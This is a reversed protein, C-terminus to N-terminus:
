IGDSVNYLYNPVTIGREHQIFIHVRQKVLVLVQKNFTDFLNINDCNKWVGGFAVPILACVKGQKRM